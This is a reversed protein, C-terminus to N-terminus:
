QQQKKINTLLKFTDLIATLSKTMKEKDIGYQVTLTEILHKLYTKLTLYSTIDVVYDKCFFATIDGDHSYNKYKYRVSCPIFKSCNDCLLGGYKSTFRYYLAKEIYEPLLVLDRIRNLSRIILDIEHDIVKHPSDLLMLTEYRVLRFALKILNFDEGENIDTETVFIINPSENDCPYITTGPQIGSKIGYLSSLMSFMESPLKFPNASLFMAGYEEFMPHQLSKNYLVSRAFFMKLILIASAIDKPHKLFDHMSMLRIAEREDYLPLYGYKSALTLYLKHAEKHENEDIFFNFGCIDCNENDLLFM